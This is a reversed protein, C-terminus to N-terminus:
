EKRKRIKRFVWIIFRFPLKLLDLLLEDFLGYTGTRREPYYSM